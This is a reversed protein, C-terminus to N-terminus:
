HILRRNLNGVGGKVNSKVTDQITDFIVYSKQYRFIVGLVGVIILMSGMLLQEEADKNLVSNQNVLHIVFNVLAPIYPFIMFFGLGIFLIGASVDLWNIEECVIVSNSEGQYKIKL